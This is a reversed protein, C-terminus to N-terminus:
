NPQYNPNKWITVLTFESNSGYNEYVSISTIKPLIREPTSASMIHSEGITVVTTNQYIQEYEQYGSIGDLTFTFAKYVADLHVNLSVNLYYTTVNYYTITGNSLQNFWTENQAYEAVETIEVEPTETITKQTIATYFACSSLILSVVVGISILITKM